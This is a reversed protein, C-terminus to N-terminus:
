HGPLSVITQGGDGRLKVMDLAEDARSLLTDLKDGPSYITLASSFGPLPISKGNHNFVTDAAHKRAKELARQAGEKQTNPFMIAFEDGGYRAVVDYTRFHGLVERAYYSLVGDGAARGYKENISRLGDIDIISLALSFGYRKARGLEAQLQQRLAERKPLGTIEDVLSHKSLKELKKQLQSREVQAQKITTGAAALEDDMECHGEILDELGKVLLHKLDMLDDGKEALKLVKLNSKLLSTFERNKLLTDTVNDVLAQKIPEVDEANVDIAEIKQKPAVPPVAKHTTQEQKTNKIEEKAPKELRQTPSKEKRPENKAAKVPEAAEGEAKSTKSPRASAPKVYISLRQQAFRAKVRTVPNGKPDDAYRGLLAYIFRLFAGEVKEKPGSYKTLGREIVSHLLAGDSTRKLGELQERINEVISLDDAIAQGGSM